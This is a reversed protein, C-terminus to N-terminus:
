QVYAFENTNFLVLAFAALAQMRVAERSLSAKADAGIQAQQQALFGLVAALEANTPLRALALRYASVIRSANDDGAERALREAFVKAQENIFEGNLFTLAQPAVTSVVRQECTEETSPFDLVELEPVLLTRKVFVFVSRRAAEAASSERWGDGPRSQTELVERSIKPYVGPGGIARNLQGSTALIADRLTEAEMRQPRYRWLLSNAPDLKEAAPNGTSAMRYTESLVIMRQMRKIRWGGSVLDSALWDLLPQNAPAAGMVGFDNESAVIGEGFHHQWLRNVLVRATLPHNPATLWRALQLRRGTTRPTPTAASPPADILVAPFGPDVQDGPSRPDGRHFVHSPPCTPGEEFWIYGRPLPAPYEARNAELARALEELKDREAPKALTRAREAILRAHKGILKRQADNRKAPEVQLAALADAPLDAAAASTSDKAGASQVAPGGTPKAVSADAAAVQVPNQAGATAFVQWQKTALSESLKAREADLERVRGQYAAVEEPPGIDRDLDTRDKQPRKLPAFIAQWRTYDKQSFPEFKHDHCRACRLTLGLFTASTTAVLDDLQDYRDVLPDAPEDDWPGLRLMTTAIQTQANTGEVEDGALQEVVFRDYPLDSNFADIVWDRYRWAQPKLGD